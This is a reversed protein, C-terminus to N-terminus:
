RSQSRGADGCQWVFCVGTTSGIKRKGAQDFGRCYGPNAVYLGYRPVGVRKSRSVLLASGEARLLDQIQECSKNSV